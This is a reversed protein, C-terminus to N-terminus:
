RKREAVKEQTALTVTLLVASATLTVTVKCGRGLRIPNAPRPQSGLDAATRSALLTGKAGATCFSSGLM